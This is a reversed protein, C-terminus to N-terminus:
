GQLVMRLQDDNYGIIVQKGGDVIVTPYSMRPNYKRLQERAEDLDQESLTDVDVYRYEVDLDQLLEKTKKCWGCTSLTFVQVKHKKNKGAVIKSKM